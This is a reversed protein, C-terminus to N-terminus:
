WGRGEELCLPPQIDPRGPGLGPSTGALNDVWVRLRESKGHKQLYSRSSSMVIDSSAIRM